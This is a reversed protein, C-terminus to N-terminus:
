LGLFGLIGGRRRQSDRCRLVSTVQSADGAQTRESQAILQEAYSKIALTGESSIAQSLGQPVGTGLGIGTLNTQGASGDNTVNDPNSDDPNTGTVHDSIRQRGQAGAQVQTERDDEGSTLAAEAEAQALLEEIQDDSLGQNRLTERIEERRAETLSTGTAGPRLLSTPPTDPTVSGIRAAADRQEAQGNLLSNTTAATQAITPAGLATTFINLRKVRMTFTFNSATNDTNGSLSLQLSELYGSVIFSDYRLRAILNRNALRTGRLIERYLRLMWVRQDDQYTNLLTGGYQFAPPAQGSYFAVYNDTLTDVIQAKEQFGEQASTLLFDLFGTGGTGSSDSAVALVRALPRTEASVTALFAEMSNAPIEVFLRAMSERYEADVGRSRNSAYKPTSGPNRGFVGQNPIAQSNTATDRFLGAVNAAGDGGTIIGPVAM